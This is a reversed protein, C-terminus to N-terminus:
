LGSVSGTGRYQEAIMIIWHGDETSDVEVVAPLDALKRKTIGSLVGGLQRIELGFAECTEAYDATSNPQKAIHAVLDKGAPTLNAIAKQASLERSDGGLSDAILRVCEGAASLHRALDRLATFDIQPTTM